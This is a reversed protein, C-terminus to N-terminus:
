HVSLVYKWTKRTALVLLMVGVAQLHAFALIMNRLAAAPQRSQVVSSFSKLFPTLSKALLTQPAPPLNELNQSVVCGTPIM